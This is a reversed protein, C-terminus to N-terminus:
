EAPECPPARCLLVQSLPHIDTTHLRHSINRISLDHRLKTALSSSGDMQSLEVSRMLYKPVPDAYHFFEDATRVRSSGRPGACTDAQAITSPRQIWPPPKTLPGRPIAHLQLVNSSYTLELLRTNNSPTQHCLMKIQPNCLLLSRWPKRV